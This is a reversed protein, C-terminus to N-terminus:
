NKDYKWAGKFAHHLRNNEELYVVVPFIVSITVGQEWEQLEPQPSALLFSKEAAGVSQASSDLLCSGEVASREGEDGDNDTDEEPSYYDDISMELVREDKGHESVSESGERCQGSRRGAVQSEKLIQSGVSPRDVPATTSAVTAPSASSDQQGPLARLTGWLGGSAALASRLAQGAALPVHISPINPSYREDEGMPMMTHESNIIIAAVAGAEEAALVQVM